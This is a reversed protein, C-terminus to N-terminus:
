IYFSMPQPVLAVRSACPLAKPPIWQLSSQGPMGAAIIQSTVPSKPRHPNEPLSPAKLSNINGEPLSVYSHFIVM